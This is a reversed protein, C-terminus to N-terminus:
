VWNPLRIDGQTYSKFEWHTDSHSKAQSYNKAFAKWEETQDVYYYDDSTPCNDSGDPKTPPFFYIATVRRAFPYWQKPDENWLKSYWSAPHHNSTAIVIEHNLVAGSHKVNVQPGNNGIDAIEKLRNLPENGNFEELHILRQGRYATPGGGWAKGDDCNRRYYRSEAPEDPKSNYNRAMTTKGTGGAGYLIIFDKIVRRPTQAPRGSHYSKGWSCTALLMKSELTEHLVQDWTYHVPRSEIYLRMEEVKDVTPTAPRKKANEVMLAPDYVFPYRCGEWIYPESNEM